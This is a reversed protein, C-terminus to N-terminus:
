RSVLASMACRGPAAMPSRSGNAIGTVLWVKGALAQSQTEPTHFSM